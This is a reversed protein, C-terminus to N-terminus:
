FELHMRLMPVTVPGRDRNYGPNWIQQVGAAAFVGRWLHANYYSEIINERGYNLKGDGLLFGVGGLKLYQQHDQSIGNSVFALGVKDEKRRWRTGAYDAGASLTENM